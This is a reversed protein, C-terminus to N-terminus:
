DRAGAEVITRERVGARNRDRAVDAQTEDVGVPERSDARQRDVDGAAHVCAAVMVDAIDANEADVFAALFEELEREAPRRIAIRREAVAEARPKRLLVHRIRDLRDDVAVELQTLVALAEEIGI